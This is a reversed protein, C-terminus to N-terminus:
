NDEYLKHNKILENYEKSRNTMSRDIQMMEQRKTRLEAEIAQQEAKIVKPDDIRVGNRVMYSGEDKNLPEIWFLRALLLLLVSAALVAIMWVKRGSNKRVPPLFDDDVPIEDLMDHGMYRFIPIYETLHVPIDEGSFFAYLERDESRTTEGEFFRHLLTEMRKITDSNATTM